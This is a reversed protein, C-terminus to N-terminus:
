SFRGKFGSERLLDLPRGKNRLRKGKAGLYGSAEEPNELSARCIQGYSWGEDGLGAMLARTREDLQSQLHRFSPDDYHNNLGYPDERHNILYQYRPEQGPRLESLDFAYVHERTYVGRWGRGSFIALPIADVSDDRHELVDGSSDRGDMGGPAPIEMLGLLTPM